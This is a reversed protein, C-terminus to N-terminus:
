SLDHKAEKLLKGYAVDEPTEIMTTKYNAYERLRRTHHRKCYYVWEGTAERYCKVTGPYPCPQWNEDCDACPKM